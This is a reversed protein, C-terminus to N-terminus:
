EPELVHLTIPDGALSMKVIELGTEVLLYPIVLTSVMRKIQRADGIYRRATYGSILIFVPMHFTYLWTYAGLAPGIDWMPTTFHGVVVLLMVWYRANDLFPDRAKAPPMAPITPLGATM